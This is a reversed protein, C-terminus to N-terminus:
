DQKVFLLSFIRNKENSDTFELVDLMSLKFGVNLFSKIIFEMRNMYFPYEIKTKKDIKNTSLCGDTYKEVDYSSKDKLIDILFDPIYILIQGNKTMSNFINQCLDETLKFEVLTFISYIIDLNNVPFENFLDHIKFELKTNNYKQKAYIIINDDIDLCICSQIKNVASIITYPIYGTGCGIDAIHLDKAQNQYLCNILHPIIVENRINDNRVFNDWVVFKDSWFSTTKM